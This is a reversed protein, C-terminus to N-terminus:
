AEFDPEVFLWKVEPFTRKIEAELRNVSQILTKVDRTEGPDFKFTLLVDRPGTQLAITRLLKGQPFHEGVKGRLFPEFDTSSAEGVLLSKIEVALLIAVLVLVVGVVISGIADWAPNGTTWALILFITAVILGLM